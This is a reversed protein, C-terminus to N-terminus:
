DPALKALKAGTATMAADIALSKGAGMLVDSTARNGNSIDNIANGVTQGAEWSGYLALAGGGIEIIPIILVPLYGTPDTGAM